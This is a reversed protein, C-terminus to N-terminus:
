SLLQRVQVERASQRANVFILAPRGGLADGAEELAEEPALAVGAVRGLVEFVLEVDSNGLSQGASTSANPLLVQVRRCVMAAVYGVM